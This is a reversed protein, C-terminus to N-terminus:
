LLASVSKILRAASFQSQGPKNKPFFTGWCTSIKLLVNGFM